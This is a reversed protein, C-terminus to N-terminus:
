PLLSLLLCRQTEEKIGYRRDTVQGVLWLIDEGQCLLRMSQRDTHSYRGDILIRRLLKSGQMGYLYLRDGEARGRLTLITGHQTLSDYDFLAQHKPLRLSKVESRPIIQWQLTGLELPLTGDTSIDIQQLEHSDSDATRPIIELYEGGRILMHTSSFFRAGSALRSLQAHIDHIQASSFGLPGLLEYLIPEPDDLGLLKSIDIGRETHVEAIRKSIAELYLGEAGRLHAITKSASQRFAPNLHEFAPILHHRIYNRKYLTEANTRDTCYPQSLESLYAEIESRSCDMLPRIIGDDRRYPMGSLGRIGTGMSLNLLLTEIQDDANHAVALYPIGSISMCEGFWTYRLDRAAMEISIGNHQAYEITDFHKVELPIGLEATLRRCFAEDADSEPGRLHFNCHLAHIRYGLALMARLLAVSDTGGSLAIYVHSHQPLLQEREITARVQHELASLTPTAM